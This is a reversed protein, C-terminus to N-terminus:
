LYFFGGRVAVDHLPAIRKPADGGFEEVILPAPRFDPPHVLLLDSIRVVDGRAINEHEVPAHRRRLQTDAIGAAPTPPPPSPFLERRSGWGVGPPQPAVGAMEGLAISGNRVCGSIM